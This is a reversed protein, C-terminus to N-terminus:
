YFFGRFHTTNHRREQSGEEIKWLGDSEWVGETMKYRVSDSFVAEITDKWQQKEMGSLDLTGIFSQLIFHSWMLVLTTCRGPDLTVIASVNLALCPESNIHRSKQKEM